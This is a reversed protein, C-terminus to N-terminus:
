LFSLDKSYTFENNFVDEYKITIECDKLINRCASQSLEFRNNPENKPIIEILTIVGNPALVPEPATNYKIDADKNKLNKPEVKDNLLDRINKYNAGGEYRVTIKKVILPGLGMNQLNVKTQHRYRSLDVYPYPKSQAYTLELEKDQVFKTIKVTFYISTLAFVVAFFSLIVGSTGSIYGGLEAWDSPKISVGLGKFHVYYILLPVLSFIIAILTLIFINISVKKLDISKNDM